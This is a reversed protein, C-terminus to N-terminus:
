EQVGTIPSILYPDLSPLGEYGPFAERCDRRLCNPNWMCSIELGPTVQLLRARRKLVVFLHSCENCSKEVVKM